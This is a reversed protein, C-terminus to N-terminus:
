LGKDYIEFLAILAPHCYWGEGKRFEVWEHTSLRWFYTYRINEKDYERKMFSILELYDFFDNRKEGLVDQVSVFPLNMLMSVSGKHAVKAPLPELLELASEKEVRRITDDIQSRLESLMLVVEKNM